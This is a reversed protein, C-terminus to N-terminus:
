GGLARIADQRTAGPHASLWYMIALDDRANQARMSYHNLKPFTKPGQHPQPVSGDPNTQVIRRGGHDTCRENQCEFTHAKGGQPLSAVAVAKSPMGCHTCRSAMEFTTEPM